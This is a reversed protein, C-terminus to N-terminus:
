IKGNIDIRLINNNNDFAIMGNDHKFLNTNFSLDKPLKIRINGRRDLISIKDLLEGVSVEVIIKNM